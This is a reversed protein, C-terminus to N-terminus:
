FRVAHARLARVFRSLKISSVRNLKQHFSWRALLALESTM